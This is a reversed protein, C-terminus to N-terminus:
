AVAQDQDARDQLLAGRDELNNRQVLPSTTALLDSKTRRTMFCARVFFAM